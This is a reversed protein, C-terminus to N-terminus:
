YDKREGIMRSVIYIATVFIILFLSLKLSSTNKIIGLFFGAPNRGFKDLIPLLAPSSTFITAVGSTQGFYLYIPINIIYYAMMFLSIFLGVQFEEGRLKVNQLIYAMLLSDIIFIIAIKLFKVNIIDSRSVGMCLFYPKSKDIMMGESSIVYLVFHVLIASLYVLVFPKDTFFSYEETMLGITKLSFIMVIFIFYAIIFKKRIKLDNVLLTKM